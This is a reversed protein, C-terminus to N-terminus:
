GDLVNALVVHNDADQAVEGDDVRAGAVLLGVAALPGSAVGIIPLKAVSAPLADRRM